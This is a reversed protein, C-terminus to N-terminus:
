SSTATTITYGPDGQAVDVEAFDNMVRVVEAAYTRVEAATIEASAGSTHTVAITVVNSM